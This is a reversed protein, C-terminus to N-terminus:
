LSGAWKTEMRVCAFRLIPSVFGFREIAIVSSLCIMVSAAIMAGYTIFGSVVVIEYSYKVVLLCNSRSCILRSSM